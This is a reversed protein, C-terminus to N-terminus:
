ESEAEDPNEEPMVFDTVTVSSIVIDTVPKCKVGNKDTTVEAAALRELVDFSDYVQGFVTYGGDWLPYGGITNYKEIIEETANEIMDALNTYYTEMAGVYEYSPDTNEMGEKAATFEAARERITPPDYQTIDTQTQATVIYFQTTNLGSENAYGVAGYFNRLDPSTEVGFSGTDSVLAEGGMGDGYLSGGQVCMDKEVRHIKLGNYYGSEALQIFNDVANPALDPYLKIKLTGYDEIVIEALKDGENFTMSNSINGAPAKDCGTLGLMCSAALAASLVIKAFGKM